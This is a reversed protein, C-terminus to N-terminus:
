RNNNGGEGDRDDDDEEEEQEEGDGNHYGNQYRHQGNGNNNNHVLSGRGYVDITSNGTREVVMVPDTVGYIDMIFKWFTPSVRYYDIKEKLKDKLIGKEKDWLSSNDVPGPPLAGLFTGRGYPGIDNDLFRTFSRIWKTSIFYWKTNTMEEQSLNSEYNAVFQREKERRENLTIWENRCTECPQLSKVDCTDQSSKGYTAVLTDYLVSSVPLVNQSLFEPGMQWAPWAVLGHPCAFTTNEVPGPNNMTEFRLIWALSLYKISSNGNNNQNNNSVEEVKKRKEIEQKSMRKSYFLIYADSNQLTSEPNSIEFVHEDDYEYWVNNLHNLCAAIYHGSGMGGFHRIVGVLDFLCSDNGNIKTQAGVYDSLDLGQLPFRVNTTIKSNGMLAGKRTFRKLHVCLIQPLHVLEKTQTAEHSAACVFCKYDQIKEPLNFHFRLCDDLTITNNPSFANMIAKPVLSNLFSFGSSSKKENITIVPTTVSSNNEETLSSSPNNTNSNNNSHHHNGNMSTHKGGNQTITAPQPSGTTTTTTGTTSNSDDSNRRGISKNLERLQVKTPLALQFYFSEDLALSHTGCSCCSTTIAVMSGFVDGVISRAYMPSVQSLPEYPPLPVKPPNREQRLQRARKDLEFHEKELSLITSYGPRLDAPAPSQCEEHLNNLVYTVAEHADQQGYQRFEPVRDIASRTIDRPVYEQRGSWLNLVTNVFHMTFTYRDVQRPPSRPPLSGPHVGNPFGYRFFAGLPRCHSLTQLTSNMYCSNGCNRLGATNGRAWNDVIPSSPTYLPPLQITATPSTNNPNPNPIPETPQQQQQQQIVHNNGNTNNITPQQQSTSIAINNPPPKPPLVTTTTTTTTTSTVAVASSM